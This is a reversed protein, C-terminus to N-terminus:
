FFMNIYIYINLIIISIVNTLIGVYINPKIYRSISQTLSTRDCEVFDLFNVTGVHGDYHLKCIPLFSIHIRPAIEWM